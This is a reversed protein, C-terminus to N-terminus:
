TEIITKKCYNCKYMEITHSEYILKRSTHDCNNEYYFATIIKFLNIDVAVCVYVIIKGHVLATYYVYKTSDFGSRNCTDRIKKKVKKKATKLILKGPDVPINREKSRQLFHKTPIFKIATM